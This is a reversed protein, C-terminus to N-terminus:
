EVKFKSANALLDQAMNSLHQFIAAIENVETTTKNAIEAVDKMSTTVSTSQLTQTQTAKTIQQLLKTIEATAAVIANLNQRTENVLNTGEVVQKIGTEM